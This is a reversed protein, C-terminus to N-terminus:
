AYIHLGICAFSVPPLENKLMQIFKDNNLREIECYTINIM